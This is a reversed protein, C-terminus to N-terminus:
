RAPFIALPISIRENPEPDVPAVFTNLCIPFRAAIVTKRSSTKLPTRDIKNAFYKFVALVKGHWTVLIFSRNKRVLSQINEEGVVSWRNLGYLFKIFLKLITTKIKYM